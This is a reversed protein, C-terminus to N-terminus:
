EVFCWNKKHFKSDEHERPTEGIGPHPLYTGPPDKSENSETVACLGPIIENVSKIIM